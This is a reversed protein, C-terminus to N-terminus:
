QVDEIRDLYEVIVDGHCPLPACWCALRKGKMALIKQRFKPNFKMRNLFVRRYQDICDERTGDVGIKFPNGFATRRDIRYDYDKTDRLNVVTTKSEKAM